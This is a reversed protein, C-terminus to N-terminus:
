KWYTMVYSRHDSRKNNRGIYCIATHRKAVALAAEADAKNDLWAFMAGDTRELVWGKEGRDQITITDPTYSTCDEADTMGDQNIRVPNPIDWSLDKWACGRECGLAFGKDKATVTLLFNGRDKRDKYRAMDWVGQNDVFVAHDTLSWTLTKWLCGEDCSLSARERAADRVRNVTISFRADNTANNQGHASLGAAVAVAALMAVVFARKM